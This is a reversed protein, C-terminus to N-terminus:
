ALARLCLREIPALGHQRALELALSLYGDADRLTVPGSQRAAEALVCLATAQGFIEGQVCAMEYAETAKRLAEGTRGGALYARALAALRYPQSARFGIADAQRIADELLPTAREAQGGMVYAMGLFGTPLPTLFEAEAQISKERARELWTVAMQPDDLSLHLFGAGLAAFAQSFPDEILDALEVAADAHRRASAFDGIEACARAIYSQANAAMAADPYAGGGFGSTIHEPLESLAAIGAQYNGRATLVMGEQFRARVMLGKDPIRAAAAASIRADRLARLSDGGVWSIHSQYAHLLSLRRPDDLAGMMGAARSLIRSVETLEGLKFLPYRHDLLVDVLLPTKEPGDPLREAASLADNLFKVAARNSSRAAAKKASQRLYATARPWDEARQAHEALTEAYEMIRHHHLREIAAVVRGHMEVRRRLLISRYVAERTLAHRYTYLAAGSQPDDQSERQPERRLDGPVLFQAVCLSRLADDLAAPDHLVIAALVDRPVRQGIVAAAQLIDKGVPALRDARAAILARVTKPLEVGGVQRMPRFRSGERQLDGTENLSLLCEEIFLPNGGTHALLHEELGPTDQGPILHSQLLERAELESLPLLRCFSACSAAVDKPESDDRFIMVVLMRGTRATEALRVLVHLSDADAWHLDEAVLVLPAQEGVHWFLDCVAAAIRGRRGSPDLALWAPDSATLDCLATLAQVTAVQIQDAVRSRMASEVGLRIKERLGATSDAAIIGLWAELMSIIVQYGRQGFSQAHGTAVLPQLDDCRRLFEQVLRSKGSGAEGTVAVAGGKGALAEHLADCLLTVETERGVFRSAADWQLSHAHRANASVALLEFLEMPEPVGRVPQVGLSRVEIVDGALRRTESSILAHGAEATQEMRAAVSVAQGMAEYYTTMDSILDRVVVEGSHLGVRVRIPEVGDSADSQADALIALAAHCAQEAHHEYALPAGFIAMIGDGSMRNVTGGYRHVAQRMKDVARSLVEDVREPDMGAILALSGQIDAFMITVIKREGIL